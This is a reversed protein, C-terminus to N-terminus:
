WSGPLNQLKYRIWLMRIENSNGTQSNRKFKNQTNKQIESPNKINKFKMQIKFKM